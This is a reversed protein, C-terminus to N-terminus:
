KVIIYIYIYTYIYIYIYICVYIYIYIYIYMYIMTLYDYQFTMCCYNIGLSEENVTVLSGSTEVSNALIVTVNACEM